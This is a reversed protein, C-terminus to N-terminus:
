PIKATSKPKLAGVFMAARPASRARHATAQHELHAERPSQREHAGIIGGFQGDGRAARGIQRIQARCGCLQHVLAPLSLVREGTKFLLSTCLYYDCVSIDIAILTKLQYNQQLEGKLAKIIRERARQSQEQAKRQRGSARKLWGCRAVM